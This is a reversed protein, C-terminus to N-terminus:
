RIDVGAKELIEHVTLQDFEETTIELLLKDDSFLQMIGTDSEPIQRSIRIPITASQLIGLTKNLRKNKM